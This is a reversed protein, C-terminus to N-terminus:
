FVSISSQVRGNSYRLYPWWGPVLLAPQESPARGVAAGALGVPFDAEGLTGFTEM